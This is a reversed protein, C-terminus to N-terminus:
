REVLTVLTDDGSKDTQFGERGAPVRDGKGFERYGVMGPLRRLGECKSYHKISGPVEEEVEMFNFHPHDNGFLFMSFGDLTESWRPRNGFVVGLLSSALSWIILLALVVVSPVKGPAVLSTPQVSYLNITDDPTIVSLASLSSSDARPKAMEIAYAKYARVLSTLLQTSNMLQLQQWDGSEPNSDNCYLSSRDFVDISKYLNSLWSVNSAIYAAPNLDMNSGETFNLDLADITSQLAQYHYMDMLNLAASVESRFLRPIATPAPVPTASNPSDAAEHTFSAYTGTTGTVTASGTRFSSKCHVGIAELQKLSQDTQRTLFSSANTLRFEKNMGEVVTGLDNSLQNEIRPCQYEHDLKIPNQWLAVEMVMPSPDSFVDSDGSLGYASKNYRVAIEMEGVPFITQEFGLFVLTENDLQHLTYVDFDCLDPLGLYEPMENSSAFDISPCRPATNDGNRQSLLEFQEISNVTTCNLAVELGWVNGCVIDNSQPAIFVTTQEDDPWSNPYGQLWARNLASTNDNPVYYASRGYLVSPGPSRWRYFSRTFVDDLNQDLFNSKQQGIVNARAHTSSISSYGSTLELTFGSLPLAIYPMVSVISLAIWAPSPRIRISMWGAPGSWSQLLKNAMNLSPLVRLCVRDSHAMLQMANEPAWWKDMLMGAEVGTLSYKCMGIGLASIAFRCCPDSTLQKNEFGCCRLCNTSAVGYTLHGAGVQPARPYQDVM